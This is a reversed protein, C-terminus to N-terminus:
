CCEFDQIQLTADKWYISVALKYRIDDGKAINDAAVGCNEGDVHYILQQNKLDLEVIFISGTRGFTKGYKTKTKQTNVRIDMGNQYTIAFYSPCADKNMQVSRNMDVEKSVVGVIIGSEYASGRVTKITWKVSNFKNSEIWTSTYGVNAFGSANNEKRITDSDDGEIVLDTGCKEFHERDFFFLICIRIISLPINMSLKFENEILHIYGHVLYKTRDDVRKLMEM